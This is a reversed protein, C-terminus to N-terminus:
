EGDALGRLYAVDEKIKILDGQIKRMVEAHIARESQFREIEKDVTTAWAAGGAIIVLVLWNAALWQGVPGKGNAM